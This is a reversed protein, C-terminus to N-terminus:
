REPDTVMFSAEYQGLVKLTLLGGDDKREASLDIPSDQKASVSKMPVRLVPEKDKGFVLLELSGNADKRVGLACCPVTARGEEGSVTVLRLKSEPVVQGDGLPVLKHLWLQGVPTVDKGAKALVEANLRTEPLVMAGYDGDAVAVPLKVDPDTPIPTGQLQKLDVSVLFAYKLSQERSLREQAQALPIAALLAAILIMRKM